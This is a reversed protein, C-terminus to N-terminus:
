MLWLKDITLVAPMGLQKPRRQNPIPSIPGIPHIHNMIRMFRM